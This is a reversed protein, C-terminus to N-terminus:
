KSISNLAGRLKPTETTPQGAYERLGWAGFRSIPGTAAYLTFLDGTLGQWNTLYQRYIQEMQPDRNIAETRKINEDVQHQGGEYTILRKGYRATLIKYAASQVAIQRNAEAAVLAMNALQNDTMTTPDVQFYPAIAVADIYPVVAGNNWVMIENGVSVNGAQTAAVRVLDSPRDKFVESWIPMFETIKQAYRAINAGFGNESLKRQLGEKQAQQAQGFQYNWVENSIEVYVPKGAPLTDHVMQAMRRHYDADANWPITFWPSSGVAKALGLQYELAVGDSGGLRLGGPTGRTAWTVSAPNANASSWDLFRLVGFPKLYDLLQTAFIADASDTTLRCDISRIPDAAQSEQIEFMVVQQSPVRRPWVFTLSNGTRSVDRREGGLTVQGSGTWTCRTTAGDSTAAAAPPTLYTIIPHGAEVFAPVGDKLTDGAVYGWGRTPDRWEAGMAQNVFTQEGSWYILPAVNVGLRDRAAIPKGPINITPATPTASSYSCTKVVNPAPDGGFANASCFISDNVDKYIFKDGSGFRVQTPRVVPMVCSENERACEIWYTKPIPPKLLSPGPISKVVSIYSNLATKSGAGGIVAGTGLLVAVSAGIKLSSISTLSSFLTNSSIVSM